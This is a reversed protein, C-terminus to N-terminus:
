TRSGCSRSTSRRRSSRPRRHERHPRRSSRARGDTRVRGAHRRSGHARRRRPRRDAAARDDLPEEVRPDISLMPASSSRPRAVRPRRISRSSTAQATCGPAPSRRSASRDPASSRSSTAPRSTDTSCASRTGPRAPHRRGDAGTRRHRRGPGPLDVHGRVAGARVRGPHRRDPPRPDLRRRRLCLGYHGERCFRCTRVRSARFSCATAPQVNKVATRDGRGHRRGRPRPHTGATVEPVDGKLIHLDTGCITVADVRVIADTDAVILPRPRGGM